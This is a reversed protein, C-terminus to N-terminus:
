TRRRRKSLPSASTPLFKSTLSYAQNPTAGIGLRRSFDDFWAKFQHPLLIRAEDAGEGTPVPAGLKWLDVIASEAWKDGRCMPLLRAQLQKLTVIRPQEIQSPTVINSM